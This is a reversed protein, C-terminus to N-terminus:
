AGMVVLRDGVELNGGLLVECCVGGRWQPKLADHLGPTLSEIHACPDTEFSVKLRVSEGIQLTKGAFRSLDECDILVNARRATWPVQRGLDACVAPWQGAALLSVGRKASVKRGEEILGAGAQAKARTVEIMSVGHGPRLAISLVTGITEITTDM